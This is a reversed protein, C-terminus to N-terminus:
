YIDAQEHFDSLLRKTVPAAVRISRRFGSDQVDENTLASFM